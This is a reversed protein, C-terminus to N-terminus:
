KNDIAFLVLMGIAAWSSVFSETPSPNHFLQAKTTCSCRLPLEELANDHVRM